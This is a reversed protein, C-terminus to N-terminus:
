RGAQLRSRNCTLRECVMKPQEKKNNVSCSYWKGKPILLSDNLNPWTSAAAKQLAKKSKEGLWFNFVRDKTAALLCLTLCLQLFPWNCFLAIFRRFATRQLYILVFITKCHKCVWFCVFIDVSGCLMTPLEQDTMEASLAHIQAHLTSKIQKLARM